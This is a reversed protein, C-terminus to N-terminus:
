LADRKTRRGDETAQVDVLSVISQKSTQVVTEGKEICIALPYGHREHQCVQPRREVEHTPNMMVLRERLDLAPIMASKINREDKKHWSVASSVTLM